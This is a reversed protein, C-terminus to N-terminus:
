TLVYPHPRPKSFPLKYSLGIKLVLVYYTFLNSDQIVLLKALLQATDYFSAM